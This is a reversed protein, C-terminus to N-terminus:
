EGGSADSTRNPNTLQVSPPPIVGAVSQFSPQAQNQINGTEYNSEPAIAQSQASQQPTTQTNDPKYYNSVNVEEVAPPPQDFQQPIITTPSMM